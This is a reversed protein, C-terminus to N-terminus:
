IGQGINPPLPHQPPLAENEPFLSKDGKGTEVEDMKESEEPITEVTLIGPEEPDIQEKPAEPLQEEDAM